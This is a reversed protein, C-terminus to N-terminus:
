GGLAFCYIMVVYIAIVLVNNSWESEVSFHIYPFALKRIVHANIFGLNVLAAKYLVLELGQPADGMRKLWLLSLATLVVFLIPVSLRKFNGWIM